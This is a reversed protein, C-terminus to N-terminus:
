FRESLVTLVVKHARKKQPLRQTLKKLSECQAQVSGGLGALTYAQLTFRYTREEPRTHSYESPAPSAQSVSIERWDAGFKRNYLGSESFYPFFVTTNDDMSSIRATIASAGALVSAGLGAGPGFGSGM